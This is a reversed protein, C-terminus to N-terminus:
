PTSIVAFEQGMRRFANLLLGKDNVELYHLQGDATLVLTLQQGAQLHSLPKYSPEARVLAILDSGPLKWERFLAALTEGSALTHDLRKGGVPIDLERTVTPELALTLSGTVPGTEQKAAPQWMLLVLWLPLLIVLGLKHKGSMLRWNELGRGIGQRIPLTVDNVKGSMSEPQKRKMAQKRRSM